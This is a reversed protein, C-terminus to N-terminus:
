LIDSSGGGCSDDPGCAPAKAKRNKTFYASMANWLYQFSELKLIVALGLYVAVGCVVQAILSALDGMPILSVGWVAAALLFQRVVKDNYTEIRQTPM